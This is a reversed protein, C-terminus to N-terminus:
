TTGPIRSIVTAPAAVPVAIETAISMVAPMMARKRVIAIARARHQGPVDDAAHDLRQQRARDHTTTATTIPKRGVVPGTAQSAATPSSASVDIATLQSDTASPSTASLTSVALLM